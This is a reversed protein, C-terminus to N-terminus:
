AFQVGSASAVKVFYFYRLKLVLGNQCTARYENATTSARMRTNKRPITSLDDRDPMRYQRYNPSPARLRSRRLYNYTFNIPNSESYHTYLTPPRSLHLSAPGPYCLSDIYGGLFHGTHIRTPLSAFFSVVLCVSSRLIRLARLLEERIEPQM